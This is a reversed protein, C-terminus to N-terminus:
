KGQRWYKANIGIARIDLRMPGQPKFVQYSDNWSTIDMHNSSVVVETVMAVMEGHENYLHKGVIPFGEKNSTPPIDVLLPENHKLPMAFAAIDAETARLIMGGAVVGGFAGKLFSRRNIDSM